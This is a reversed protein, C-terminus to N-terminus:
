PQSDNHGCFIFPLINIQLLPCTGYFARSIPLAPLMQVPMSTTSHSIRLSENATHHRLENDYKDLQQHQHDDGHNRRQPSSSLINEITFSSNATSNVTIRHYSSPPSATPSKSSVPDNRDDEILENHDSMSVKEDYALRLQDFTEAPTASLLAALQQM